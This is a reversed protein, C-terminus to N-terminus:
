EEWRACVSEILDKLAYRNSKWTKKGNVRFFEKLGKLLVVQHETFWLRGSHYKPEPFYHKKRWERWTSITIGVDQAAQTFFVHGDFISSAGTDRYKKSADLARQRYEANEAYLKEWENAFPAFAYDRGHQHQHRDSTLTM